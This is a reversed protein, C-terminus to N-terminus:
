EQLTSQLWDIFHANHRNSLLAKNPIYYCLGSKVTNPNVAQLIGAQVYQKTLTTALNISVGITLNQGM